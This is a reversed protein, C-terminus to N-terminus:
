AAGSIEPFIYLQENIRDVFLAREHDAIVERHHARSPHARAYCAVEDQLARADRQKVAGVEVPTRGHPAREAAM